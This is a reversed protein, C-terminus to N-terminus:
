HHKVSWTKVTADQGASAVTNNDMWLVVNVGGRHADKVQIRKTPDEISWVFINGDLSGSVIHLSDKSWALSNVKASHFVWGQIQIAKTSLNWVFIDRQYDGAALYKGDPSYELTTLAGRHGELVFSESLTDGNLTFVHIKNDKGGVAVQTEDVSLAVSTPEFKPSHKHAVKGGRVVVVANHTVAVVLDAKKSVALDVPNAELSVSSGSYERSALPTVRLSDDMAGSVLNGNQVFMRNLQNGHGKGKFGETAGTKVDWEVVVSDYSGSYLKGNKEDFALATIFKSHGKVVRKPGATHELDWYNIDGSLSFSVVTKGQWLTGLQQDETDSKEKVTFTKLCNGTAADWLKCTKDASATFIQTSDPSWSASYIGGTHGQEQNLKGIQDGTKGDFLFATKDTAVSLLKEGNPSFRVCTVVRTHDKFSKKFKFPPGEFYNVQCDESGTAIRYPRTQKFDVTGIAKSHGSIEGVSSGSDWLFVSGFKEKGDGVVVLRKSDESWQLDMVPGSLVKLELKLIHEKQTTDWIRVIGASDGSCIYFGSPAYRAVTTPFQHDNYQEAVLPNELDRIFISNGCAYLFNKGKPDGSVVVPKGRTTVPVAAYTNLVTASM